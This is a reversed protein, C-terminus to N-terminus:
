GARSVMNQMRATNMGAKKMPPMALARNTGRVRATPKEITQAKKREMVM